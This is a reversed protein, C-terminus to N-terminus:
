SDEEIPVHYIWGDQLSGFAATINKEKLCSLIRWAPKFDDLTDAKNLYVYYSREGVCKRLGHLSSAIAVLDEETVTDRKEKKLFHATQEPRHAINEIPKYLSDLGIVGVVTDALDPIVPEWSAPTKIPMRRAGDAEILLVDCMKLLKHLKEEELDCAKELACLKGKKEDVSATLVYGYKVLMAAIQKLNGDRVFPCHEEMAMHTTTTLIVRKGKKTFEKCLNWLLTTKGGGGVVAIVSKQKQDLGFFGSFGAQTNVSQMGASMGRTDKRGSM